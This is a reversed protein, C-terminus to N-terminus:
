RVYLPSFNPNCITSAVQFDDYLLTTKLNEAFFVPCIGRFVASFDLSKLLAISDDSSSFINARILHDDVILGRRGACCHFIKGFNVLPQSGTPRERKPSARAGPAPRMLEDAFGRTSNVFYPVNYLMRAFQVLTGQLFLSFARQFLAIQQAPHHMSAGGREVLVNSNPKM